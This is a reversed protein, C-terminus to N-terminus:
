ILKSFICTQGIQFEIKVYRKNVRNAHHTSKDTIDIIVGDGLPDICIEDGVNLASYDGDGPDFNTFSNAPLAAPVNKRLSIKALREGVAELYEYDQVSKWKDPIINEGHLAGLMGGAIAVITDTDSGLINIAEVIGDEQKGHFKCTVYLAALVTNTGYGKTPKVRSGLTNYIDTLPKGKQLETSLMKLYVLTEDLIVGYTTLFDYNGQDEDWKTVWDDFDNNSLFPLDFKNKFDTIIEDILEKPDFAKPEKSIILHLAYGYLLGGILARPHGHTIIGNGFIYEKMQAFNEHNALAIPAIRMAVGNAVCDRYDRKTSDSRPYTFFNYNWEASKRKIKGAAASITNGAGLRYHFWTSLERKAFKEHDVTGDARISRAVALTLQTDDSYSGSPMADLNDGFRGKHMNWEYFQDVNRYGCRNELAEETKVQETIFGLADSIASLKICGKIRTEIAM